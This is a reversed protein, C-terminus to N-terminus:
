LYTEMRYLDTTKLQEPKNRLAFQTAGAKSMEAIDEAHKLEDFYACFGKVGCIQSMQIDHMAPRHVRLGVLGEPMVKCMQVQQVQNLCHFQCDVWLMLRHVSAVQNWKFLEKEIVDFRDDNLNAPPVNVIVENAGARAASEIGMLKTDSTDDPHGATTVITIKNRGLMEAATSVFIPPVYIADVKDNRAHNVLVQLDKVSEIQRQLEIRGM